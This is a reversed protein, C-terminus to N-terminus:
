KPGRTARKKALVQERPLWPYERDETTRVWTLKGGKRWPDLVIGDFMDAGKSSVIVTSHEIRLANESNAIARHLDLTEFSESALRTQMDQAWHWCLGRPRLGMNVKTNHILPPDSIQYARALDLPYLYAIRAIRQAEAPDVEPGLAAVARALEAIQPEEVPPPASACGALALGASALLGGMVERRTIM